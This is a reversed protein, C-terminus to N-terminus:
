LIFHIVVSLMIVSPMVVSLLIVNLKVASLMEVNLMVIFLDRCQAFHWEAYNNCWICLATISLTM